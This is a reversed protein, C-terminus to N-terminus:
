NKVKRPHWYKYLYAAFPFWLFLALMVIQFLERDSISVIFSIWIILGLVFGFIGFYLMAPNKPKIACILMSIYTGSYLITHLLAPDECTGLESCLTSRIDPLLTTVLLTATGLSGIFFMFLRLM